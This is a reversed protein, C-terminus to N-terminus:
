GTRKRFDAAIQPFRRPSAPGRPVILLPQAFTRVDGPCVDAAPAMEPLFGTLKLRKRATSPKARNM